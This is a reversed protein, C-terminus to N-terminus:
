GVRFTARSDLGSGRLWANVSKTINSLAIPKFRSLRMPFTGPTTANKYFGRARFHYETYFLFQASTNRIQDWTVKKVQAGGDAIVRGAIRRVARLTADRMAGTKMAVTPSFDIWADTLGQAMGRAVARDITDQIPDAQRISGSTVVISM